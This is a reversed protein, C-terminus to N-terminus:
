LGLRYQLSASTAPMVRDPTQSIFVIADISDRAIKLEGILEEAAAECLDSARGGPPAMRVARIGTNEAIRKVERDGFSQALEALELREKPLCVAIGSVAM